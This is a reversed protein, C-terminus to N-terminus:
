GLRELAEEAIEAVDANADELLAELAERADPQGIQGLLDATDGRLADDQTGLGAILGVVIGNLIGPARELATEGILMLGMRSSLTSEQWAALFSEAGHGSEVLREAAADINGTTVLSLFVEREYEDTGRALIKGALEAASVVENILLEGDLVTMPVSRVKFREALEPFREADIIAATIRRSALALANAARVAQPCHPCAPSIFVLIEAPQTLDRLRSELDDPLRSKRSAAAEQFPAAEHGEPLAMYHIIGSNSHRLTLAPAGPVGEGSGQRLVVGDGAARALTHAVESLASSFASAHTDPHFTIEPPPNLGKLEDGIQTLYKTDTVHQRYAIEIYRPGCGYIWIPPRLV